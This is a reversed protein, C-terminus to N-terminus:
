RIVWEVVIGVADYSPLDKNIACSHHTYKFGVNVNGKLWINQTVGMNSSIRDNIGGKYCFSNEKITYDLGVFVTSYDFWKAESAKAQNIGFLAVGALAPVLLIKMISLPISSKGESVLWYDKFGKVTFGTRVASYFLLMGLLAGTLMLFLKIEELM